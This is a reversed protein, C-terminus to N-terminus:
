SINYFISTAEVKTVVIVFNKHETQNNNKLFIELWYGTIKSPIKKNLFNQKASSLNPFM